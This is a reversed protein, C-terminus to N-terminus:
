RVGTLELGQHHDDEPGRHDHRESAHHLVQPSRPLQHPSDASLLGHCLTFDFAFILVRFFSQSLKKLIIRTLRVRLLRYFTALAISFAGM